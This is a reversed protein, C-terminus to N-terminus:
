RARGANRGLRRRRGRRGLDPAPRGVGGKDGNRNHPRDALPLGLQPRGDLTSSRGREPRGSVRPVSFAIATQPTLTVADLHWVHPKRDGYGILWLANGFQVTIQPLESIDEEATIKPTTADIRLVHENQETVWVADRGPSWGRRNTRGSALHSGRETKPDIRM